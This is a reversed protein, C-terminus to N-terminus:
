NQWDYREGLLEYLRENHPAFYAALQARLEPALPDKYRGQNLNEFAPPRWSDLGLFELVQTFTEQPARFLRESQLVLMQEPAFYRQWHVLQDAYVGRALYSSHQHAHSRYSPDALMRQEEGALREPEANLAEAFSLPERRRMWNHQYHSYARSVPNRLLFILKVEPLLSQIRAPVRPEFQYYPSSEFTIRTKAAQKAGAVIPFFSRYWAEGRYYNNDFYHVEKASSTACQPHQELYGFLSTTGAKQAGVILMNPLERVAATMNRYLLRPSALHRARRVSPSHWFRTFVHNQRM